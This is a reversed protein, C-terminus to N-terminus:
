SDVYVYQLVRKVVALVTPRHQNADALDILLAAAAHDGESAERHTQQCERARMTCSWPSAFGM